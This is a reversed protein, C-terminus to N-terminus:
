DPEPAAIFSPENFASRPPVHWFKLAVGVTIVQVCVIFAACAPWGAWNWFYGPLIAGASGGLYYFSAYLGVALARHREAAIGV